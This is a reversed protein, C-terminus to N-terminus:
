RQEVFDYPLQEAIKDWAWYGSTTIDNQEYFFGNQEIVISEKPKFSLLSFRFLKPENPNQSIYAPSPKSGLYLVGVEPQNPLIEVTQTSDDKAYNIASYIDKLVIAEEKGYANVIFQMEFKQEKLQKNYISRMFHIKSGLYAENRAKQWLLIQVTDAIINEYLPYGTFTSVETNYEHTFSDLEYKINYGLYKNVILLPEKAMIKLRNKKKSFYFHLVEPNQITCLSANSSKGIFEGLFFQGYKALGDMVENTSVIAVAELEKSKEKLKIVLKEKNDASTIRKNETSFGTYSIILDYGGSPLTITFNGATDTVTGLTTNQAFVSASALPQGTVENVVNGSIIFNNQAVASCCTFFLGTLLTILKM